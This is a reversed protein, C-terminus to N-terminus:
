SKCWNNKAATSKIYGKSVAESKSLTHCNWNGNSYNCEDVLIGGGSIFIVKYDNIWQTKTFCTLKRGWKELQVKGNELRAIAIAGYQGKNKDENMGAFRKGNPSWKTTDNLDDRKGTTYNVIASGYEEWFFDDTYEEYVKVIGNYRDVEYLSYLEEGIEEGKEKTLKSEFTAVTKGTTPNKIILKCGVRKAIDPNLRILASEKTKDLLGCDTGQIYEANEDPPEACRSISVGLSVLLFAFPIIKKM